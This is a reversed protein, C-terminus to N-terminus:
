DCLLQQIQAAAEDSMEPLPPPRSMIKPAARSVKAHKHRRTM